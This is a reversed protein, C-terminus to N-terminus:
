EGKVEQRFEAVAEAITKDKRFVASTGGVFIDAGLAAMYAAREININGDTSILIEPHNNELLLKKTQAVKEMIGEVMKQGAFGPYVLMLLVLDIKDLYPLLVEAPTDPNVALGVHGGKARIMEIAENVTDEPLESHVTIYDAPTLDIVNIFLSPNDMMLHYDLPTHSIKALAKCWDPGFTMNPVFHADMIDLHFWDVKNEELEAVAKTMNMLDACMLSPALLKKMNRYNSNESRM